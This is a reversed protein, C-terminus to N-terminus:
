QRRGARERLWEYDTRPNAPFGGGAGGERNPRVTDPVAWRHMEVHGDTFSINAGRSHYSGPLNGWQYEDWRNVFFGDNVTDPHEDLFLFILAPNVLDASKYAQVYDPNFQGAVVGPDGVLSNLSHSRLRPGNAAMSTDSPCHFVGVANGVYPALKGSLVLATNTNDDTALWDQINNVWSQRRARTDDRGHNNVFREDHDGAYTAHAVTLQRITSACSIAHAKAKARALAPLLLGALIAIIAIVVLLEILTFGRSSSRPIQMYAM